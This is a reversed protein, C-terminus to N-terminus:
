ILPPAQSEMLCFITHFWPFVVCFSSWWRSQTGWLSFFKIFLPGNLIIMIAKSMDLKLAMVGKKGRKNKKLWYLCEMAILANNTILRGQVFASQEVDIVNPLTAKLRNAIVKTVIKM